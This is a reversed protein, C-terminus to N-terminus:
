VLVYEECVQLESFDDPPLTKPEEQAMIEEAGLVQRVAASKLLVARNQM